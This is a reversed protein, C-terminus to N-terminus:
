TTARRPYLYLTANKVTCPAMNYFHVSYLLLQPMDSIQEILYASIEAKKKKKKPFYKIDTNTLVMVKLNENKELLLSFIHLWIRSQM